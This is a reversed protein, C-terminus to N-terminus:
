TRNSMRCWLPYIWVEKKAQTQKLRESQYIARDLRGRSLFAAATYFWAHTWVFLHLHIHFSIFKTLQMELTIHSFLHLMVRSKAYASDWGLM